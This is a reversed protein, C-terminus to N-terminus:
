GLQDPTKDILYLHYRNKIILHNLGQYDIYPCLSGDPKKNFFISISAFSKSAWILGTKLYTKIFDNLTKLEVTSFIYISNYM